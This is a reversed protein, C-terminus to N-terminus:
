RRLMWLPRPETELVAYMLCPPVHRCGYCKLLPLLSILFELGDQVCLLNFALKPYM